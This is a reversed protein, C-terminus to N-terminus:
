RVSGAADRMAGRGERLCNGLSIRALVHGLDAAKRYWEVAKEWSQSVGSGCAYAWGTAYFVDAPNATEEVPTRLPPTAAPPADEVPAEPTADEEGAPPVFEPLAEPLEPAPPVPEPAPAAAEPCAPPVPTDSLLVLGPRPEAKGSIIRLSSGEEIRDGGIHLLGGGWLRELVFAARRHGLSAAREFLARAAAENREVGHGKHYRVALAFCAAPNRALAARALRAVKAEAETDKTM